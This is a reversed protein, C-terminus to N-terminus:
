RPRSQKQALSELASVYQRSVVDWNLEERAAKRCNARITEYRVPDALLGNIVRAIDRPNQEDFVDGLGYKEIMQRKAPQDSVALPIGGMVYTFFKYDLNHRHNLWRRDIPSVGLDASAVYAPVENSSVWGILRVKDELHMEQIMTQLTQRLIGDGVITIVTGDDLYQASEVLKELGKGYHLYGVYIAVRRNVDGALRARIEPSPTPEVYPQVNLIVMPEPISYREALIQAVHQSVAIVLDCRHCLMKEEWAVAAKQWPMYPIGRVRETWLEASDYVLRAGTLRAAVYAPRLGTLDRAVYVDAKLRAAKVAAAFCFSLFNLNHRLMFFRNIQRNLFGSSKDNYALLTDGGEQGATSPRNLWRSYLRHMLTTHRFIPVGDRVEQEPLDLGEKAMGVVAVQHGAHLLAQSQANIRIETFTDDRFHYSTVIVVKM